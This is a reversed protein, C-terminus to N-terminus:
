SMGPHQTRYPCDRMTLAANWNITPGLGKRGTRHNYINVGTIPHRCALHETRTKDRVEPNPFALDGICDKVVVTPAGDTSNNDFVENWHAQSYISSALLIVRMGDQPICHKAFAIKKLHICYRNQLLTYIGNFLRTYADESFIWSPFTFVFFDLKRSPIDIIAQFNDLIKLDARMQDEREPVGKDPISIIGISPGDHDDARDPNTGLWLSRLDSSKHRPADYVEATPYAAKVPTLM